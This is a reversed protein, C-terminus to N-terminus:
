PGSASAAAEELLRRQRQAIQRNTGAKKLMELRTKGARDM